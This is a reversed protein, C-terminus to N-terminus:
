LFYRNNLINGIKEIFVSILEKEADKVDQHTQKIDVEIHTIQEGQEVVMKAVDKMMQNISIVDKEVEILYYVCLIKYIYGKIENAKELIMEEYHEVHQHLDDDDYIDENKNNNEEYEKSHDKLKLSM